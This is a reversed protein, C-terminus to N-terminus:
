HDHVAFVVESNTNRRACFHLTTVVCASEKVLAPVAIDDWSESDKAIVVDDPELGFRAIESESATAAMFDLSLSIFENNYVNEFDRLQPNAEYQAVGKEGVYHGYIVSM